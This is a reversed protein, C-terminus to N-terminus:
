PITVADVPEVWVRGLHFDGQFTSQGASTYTQAASVFCQLGFSQFRDAWSKDTDGRKAKFADEFANEGLRRKIFIYYHGAPGLQEDRLAEWAAQWPQGEHWVTGTFDWALTNWREPSILHESGAYMYPTRTDGLAYDAFFRCFLLDEDDGAAPEVYLQAVMGSYPTNDEIPHSWEFVLSQEIETWGEDNQGSRLLADRVKLAGNAAGALASEEVQPRPSTQNGDRDMLFVDWSDAAVAVGLGPPEPPPNGRLLFGIAIGAVLLVVAGTLALITRARKRRDEGPTPAPEEEDPRSLPRSALARSLDVVLRRLAALEDVYYPGHHEYREPRQAEALALLAPIQMQQEAYELLRDVIEDKGMGRALTHYVPRFGPVDFCLRRLAEDGFGEVLLDRINSLDYDQKTM